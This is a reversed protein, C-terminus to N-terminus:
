EMIAKWLRKLLEVDTSCHEVIYEVSKRDGTKALKWISADYPSKEKDILFTLAMSDLTKEIKPFFKASKQKLDIHNTPAFKLGYRNARKALFPVDFSAGNWSVLSGYVSLAALANTIVEEEENKDSKIVRIRSNSSNAICVVLVKDKEPNFGTTEIDFFGIKM